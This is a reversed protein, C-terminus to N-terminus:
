CTEMDMSVIFSGYFLRIAFDPDADAPDAARFATNGMREQKRGHDGIGLDRKGVLM